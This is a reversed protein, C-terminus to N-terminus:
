NEKVFSIVAGVPYAGLFNVNEGAVTVIDEGPKKWTIKSSGGGDLNLADKLGLSMCVDALQDFDMGVGRNDRGEVHIFVVRNDQTIGIISRPNPNSAHYLEGNGIFNVNKVLGHGFDYWEANSNNPDFASVFLYRGQKDKLNFMDYTFVKRSNRVLIAGCSLVNNYKSRNNYSNIELMGRNNIGVVGYYSAYNEPIPKDIITDGSKYYGVPLFNSKIFFFTSNITIGSDVNKRVAFYNRQDVGCCDFRFKYGNRLGNEQDIGAVHINQSNFDRTRNQMSPALTFNGEVINTRVNLSYALANDKNRLGNRLDNCYLIDVYKFSDTDAAIYKYLPMNDNNKPSKFYKMNDLNVFVDSIFFKNQNLYALIETKNSLNGNYKPLVKKIFNALKQTMEYANSLRHPMYLLKKPDPRWLNVLYQKIYQDTVEDKEINFFYSFLKRSIDLAKNLYVQNQQLSYEPYVSKGTPIGNPGYEPYNVANQGTLNCFSFYLITYIDYYPNFEFRDLMDFPPQLTVRPALINEGFEARSFGYDILVTDYDFKSYLYQSNGLDYCNIKEQKYKRCMVNGTHLDYHTFKSTNQGAALTHMLQFLMYAYDTETSINQEIKDLKETISYVIRQHTERDFLFSYTKMFGNTYEETSKALLLGLLNETVYNPALILTKNNHSVPVKFVLDGEQAVSCLQRTILPTSKDEAPKCLITKKVIKEINKESTIKYVQGLAGGGIPVPSYRALYDELKQINQKSSHDNIDFKQLFSDIDEVIYETTM